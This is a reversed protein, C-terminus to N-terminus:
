GFGSVENALVFLFKFFLSDWFFRFNVRGITFRHPGKTRSSIASGLVVREREIGFLVQNMEGGFKRVQRGKGFQFGCASIRNMLSLSFFILSWIGGPRFLSSWCSSSGSGARPPWLVAVLLLRDHHFFLIGRRM